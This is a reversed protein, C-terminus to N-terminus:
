TPTRYLRGVPPFRLQPRKLRALMTADLSNGVHGRMLFLTAPGVSHHLIASWTKSPKVTFKTVRTFRVLRGIGVGDHNGPRSSVLVPRESMRVSPATGRTGISPVLLCAGARGLHRDRKKRLRLSRWGPESRFSLRCGRLLGKIAEAGRSKMKHSCATILAYGRPGSGCM